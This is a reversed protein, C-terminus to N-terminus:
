HRPAEAGRAASKPASPQERVPARQDFEVEYIEVVMPGVKFDTKAGQRLKVAVQESARVAAESEWLTISQWKGTAPDSFSMAGKYGPLNAYAPVVTDNFYTRLKDLADIPTDFRTVRAHM